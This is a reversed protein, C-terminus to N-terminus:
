ENVKVVVMHCCCNRIPKYCVEIGLDAEYYTIIENLQGQLYLYPRNRSTMSFVTEFAIWCWGHGTVCFFTSCLVLWIFFFFLLFSTGRGSLVKNLYLLLLVRGRKRWPLFMTELTEDLSPQWIKTTISCHSSFEFQAEVGNEFVVRNWAYVSDQLFIVYLWKFPGKQFRKLIYGMLLRRSFAKQVLSIQIPRSLKLQVKGICRLWIKRTVACTHWWKLELEGPKWVVSVCDNYIWFM